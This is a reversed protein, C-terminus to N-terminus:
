APMQACMNTVCCGCRWAFGGASCLVGASVLTMVPEPGWRIPISEGRVPAGDMIEYKGLTEVETRKAPGTGTVERRRIELEMHKLKIRVQACVHVRLGFQQSHAFVLSPSTRKVISELPRLLHLTSRHVTALQICRALARRLPFILAWYLM